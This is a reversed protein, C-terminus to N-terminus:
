GISVSEVGFYGSGNGPVDDNIFLTLYGSNGAHFDTGNGTGVYTYTSGIRALLSYAPKGPLPSQRNAVGYGAPGNNGTFWLGSWIQQAPDATIVVHQGQQVYRGTDTRGTSEPVKYVYAYSAAPVLAVAALAATAALVLRRPRLRVLTAKIQM